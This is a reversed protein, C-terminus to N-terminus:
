RGDRGAGEDVDDLQDVCAGAADDRHASPLDPMMQLFILAVSAEVPVGDNKRCGASAM